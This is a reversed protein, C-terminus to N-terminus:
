KLLKELAVPFGYDSLKVFKNKIEFSSLYSIFKNFNISTSLEKLILVQKVLEDSLNLPWERYSKPKIDFNRKYLHGYHACINRLVSLSHLWSILFQENLQFYKRSILKQDNANLNNLYKSLANFSMYEVIVWIPFFGPYKFKHHSIVPEKERVGTERNLSSLLDMHIRPSKYLEWKYFADSGHTNSLHYSIITKSRIEVPELLLLLEHRFNRDAIYAEVIREFSTNKAFHDPKDMCQHFYYNLRYYNNDQLFGRAFGLDEFYM